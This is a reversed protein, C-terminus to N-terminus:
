SPPRGHRALAANSWATDGTLERGFWDPPVFASSAQESDFEVEVTCLGALSGAYLDVEAVLVSGDAGGPLQVRHRTKDIRRGDTAPWLEEASERAIAVEVETRRAGRGAKITVVSVEGTIRLRVEADGEEAIFGQRIAEGVGLVSAPPPVEVLFKREIEVPM